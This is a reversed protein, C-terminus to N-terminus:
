DLELRVRGCKLAETVVVVVVWWGGVRLQAWYLLLVYHPDRVVVVVVWVSLCVSQADCHFPLIHYLIFHLIYIM